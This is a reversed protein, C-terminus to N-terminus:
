KKDYRLAARLQEIAQRILTQAKARHGGFDHAAHNLAREAARLKNLARVIEPHREHKRHMAKSGLAAPASVPANQAIAVPALSLAATVALATLFNKM